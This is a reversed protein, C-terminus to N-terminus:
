TLQESEFQFGCQRVSIQDTSYAILENDYIVSNLRVELMQFAGIIRLRCTKQMELEFETSRDTVYYIGCGKKNIDILHGLLVPHRLEKGSLLAYIGNGIPFRDMKRRNLAPYPKRVTDLIASNKRMIALMDRM